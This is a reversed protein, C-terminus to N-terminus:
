STNELVSELYTIQDDLRAKSKKLENIMLENTKFFSEMKYLMKRRLHLNRMDNDRTTAKSIGCMDNM